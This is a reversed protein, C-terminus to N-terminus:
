AIVSLSQVGGLALVENKTPTSLTGTAVPDLGLEQRKTDYFKKLKDEILVKTKEVGAQVGDVEFAGIGKLTDFAQDYGKQIGKSVKDFFSDLAEEDSLEPHQKKYADFFATTSTVIREATAEPTYDEKNLSEVGEPLKDKLLENIKDVIEKITHNQSIAGVNFDFSAADTEVSAQLSTQIILEDSQLDAKFSAQFNLSLSSQSSSLSGLVADM